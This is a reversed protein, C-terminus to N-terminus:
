APAEGPFTVTVTTGRGAESELEIAANHLMAAHKVISLGLGTGGREKSRSKDVRYFREFVRERHEPPIGIGTDAVKLVVGAPTDTVTVTVAGGEKNYKVANDTLNYVIGYLLQPVGEMKASGGELTLTVRAREAEDMLERVAGAAIDYLDCTERAMDEAGEDLHSLRIIDEVLRIMRQAEAYIRGYFGERDSDKVVGNMLLEASGAITHLPTKLEHSVNATFERRLREREQKETVDIALLIAGSVKGESLVPNALLEYKGGAIDLFGEGHRGNLADAVLDTLEPTRNVSMIDRGVCSKDAGFIRQAARNVALIVGRDTLLIIGETMNDTVTDLEKQKQTLKESQAKIEKQQADIRRLLPTLEDYGENSLPDDLNLANLPKVIQRSLRSALFLALAVAMVLIIIMPQLMGMILTFLSNQSVSLRLVTGDPLREARYFARETLTASTRSSEGAGTELAKRIEERELHNEMSDADADSDYLVDGDADVWTIRFRDTDLGDFYAEGEGSVGKVALATEARLQEFQVASFYDYLVWMILVVGALFVGISAFCISRFVRKTM